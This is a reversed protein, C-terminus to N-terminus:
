RLDKDKEELLQDYVVLLSHLKRVQDLTVPTGTSEDSEEPIPLRSTGVYRVTFFSGNTFM